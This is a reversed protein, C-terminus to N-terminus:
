YRVKFMTFCRGFAGRGQGCARSSPSHRHLAINKCFQALVPFFTYTVASTKKAYFWMLLHCFKNRKRNGHRKCFRSYLSSFLVAIGPLLAFPLPLHRSYFYYSPLSFEVGSIIFISSRIRIAATMVGGKTRGVQWGGDGKKVRFVYNTLTEKVAKLIM